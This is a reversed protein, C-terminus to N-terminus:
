KVLVFFVGNEGIQSAFEKWTLDDEVKLHFKVTLLVPWCAVRWAPLVIALFLLWGLPPYTLIHKCGMCALNLPEQFGYWWLFISGM